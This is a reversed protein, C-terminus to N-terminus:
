SKPGILIALRTACVQEEQADYVEVSVEYTHRANSEPVSCTCVAYVRGRAKRLYDIDLKKVIFRADHPMSYTLAMSGTLEALNALAIAHISKLHNRVSKQEVLSIRAYGPSLEEVLFPISGTYPVFRGLARSFLQRGGPLAHLRDWAEKAFNIQSLDPLPLKDFFSAHTVM